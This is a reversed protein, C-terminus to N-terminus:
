DADRAVVIQRAQEIDYMLDHLEDVELEGKAVAMLLAEKAVKAVRQQENAELLAVLEVYAKKINTM